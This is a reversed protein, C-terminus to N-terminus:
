SGSGYEMDSLIKGGYAAILGDQVLQDKSIVSPDYVVVGRKAQIDVRADVVGVMGEFVSESSQACGACFMGPLDIEAVRVILTKSDFVSSPVVGVSEIGTQDQAGCGSLLIVFGIALALAWFEFKMKMM